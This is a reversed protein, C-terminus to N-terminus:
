PVFIKDGVTYIVNWQHGDCDAYIQDPSDSKIIYRYSTRFGADWVGYDAGKWVKLLGMLDSVSVMKSLIPRPSGICFIVARMSVPDISSATNM